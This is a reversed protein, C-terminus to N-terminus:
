LAKYISIFREGHLEEMIIRNPHVFLAIPTPTILHILDATM